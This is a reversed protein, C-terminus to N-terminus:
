FATETWVQPILNEVAGGLFFILIPSSLRWTRRMVHVNAELDCRGQNLAWKDTVSLSIVEAGTLMDVSSAASAGCDAPLVRAFVGGIPRGFSGVLSGILQRAPRQLRARGIIGTWIGIHM